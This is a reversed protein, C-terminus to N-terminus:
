RWQGCAAIGAGAQARLKRLFFALKRAVARMSLKLMQSQNTQNDKSDARAKPTRARAKVKPDRAKEKAKPSRRELREGLSVQGTEPKCHEQVTTSRWQWSKPEYPTEPQKIRQEHLEWVAARGREAARTPRKQDADGTGSRGICSRETSNSKCEVAKCCTWSHTKQGSRRCCVSSCLWGGQEMTDRTSWCKSDGSSLGTHNQLGDPM